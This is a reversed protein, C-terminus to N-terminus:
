RGPSTKRGEKFSFVGKVVNVGMEKEQREEPDYPLSLPCLHCRSPCVPTGTISPPSMDLCQWHDSTASTWHEMSLLPSSSPSSPLVLGPPARFAEPTAKTLSALDM